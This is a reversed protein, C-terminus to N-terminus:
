IYFHVCFITYRHKQCPCAETEVQPDDCDVANSTLRTRSRSSPCSPSCASWSSWPGTECQNLCNVWCREHQSPLPSEMLQTDQLCDKMDVKAGASLCDLARVRVGEGCSKGHPLLCSSWSQPRWSRSQCSRSSQLPCPRVDILRSCESGGHRPWQLVRRYRSQTNMIVTFSPMTSTTTLALPSRKRSTLATARCQDECASWESWQTLQCHHPCPKYCSDETSPLQLGSCRWDPVVRGMIDSVDNDMVCIASRTKTGPGCNSTKNLVLCTSWLGVRWHFTDCETPAPCM